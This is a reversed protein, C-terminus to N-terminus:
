NCIDSNFLDGVQEVWDLLCLQFQKRMLVSRRSICGLIVLTHQASHLATKLPSFIGTCIILAGDCRDTAMRLPPLHCCSCFEAFFLSRWCKAPASGSYSALTSYYETSVYYRNKLAFNDTQPAALMVESDLGEAEGEKRCRVVIEMGLAAIERGIMQWLRGGGSHTYLSEKM